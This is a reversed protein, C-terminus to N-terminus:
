GSQARYLYPATEREPPAGFRRGRRRRGFPGDSRDPREPLRARHAPGGAYAPTKRMAGILFSLVRDRSEIPRSAAFAKGGGDSVLVVDEALLSLLTDVDGQELAALFRSVWEPGAAEGAVPEKDTIGMKSRARSMLKRCNTESKGTLEAIDPYDFGIAERLVFVAREAPTLRELLVLMAYSLLDSRVVAELADTEPTPIPEPLWPGVYTERRRRASKLLDLCRNTVM